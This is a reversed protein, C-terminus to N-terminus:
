QSSSGASGAAASAGAKPQITVNTFTIRGNYQTLEDPDPGAFVSNKLQINEFVATPGTTVKVLRPINAGKVNDISVNRLIPIYPGQNSQYTYEVLFGAGKPSVAGVEVNRM